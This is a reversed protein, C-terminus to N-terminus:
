EVKAHFCLVHLKACDYGLCYSDSHDLVFDHFFVWVIKQEVPSVSPNM